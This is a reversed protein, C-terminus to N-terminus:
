RRGYGALKRTRIVAKTRLRDSIRQLEVVVQVEFEAVKAGGEADVVPMWGVVSDAEAGDRVRGWLDDVGRGISREGKRGVNEGETHSHPLALSALFRVLAQPRHLHHVVDALAIVPLMLGPLQDSM